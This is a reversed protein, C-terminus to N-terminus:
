FQNDNWGRGSKKKLAARFKSNIRKSKKKMYKELKGEKKLQDYKKELYVNAINVREQNDGNNKDNKVWKVAGFRTRQLKHHYPRKIGKSVQDIEMKRMQSKSQQELDREKIRNKRNQISILEKKLTDIAAGKERIRYDIDKSYGNATKKTQKIQKKNEKIKKKIMDIDRDIIDDLFKYAKRLKWGSESRSDGYNNNRERPQQFFRPDRSEFKNTDTENLKRYKAKRSLPTNHIKTELPAGGGNHIKSKKFTYSNIRHLLSNTNTTKNQHNHHHSSRNYSQKNQVHDKPYKRSLKIAHSIEDNNYGLKEGFTAQENNMQNTNSDDDNDENETDNDQENNNEQISHTSTTPQPSEEEEQDAHSALFRELSDM